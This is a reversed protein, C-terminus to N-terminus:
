DHHSSVRGTQILAPWRPCQNDLVSEGEDGACQNGGGRTEDESHRQVANPDHLVCKIIIKEQKVEFMKISGGMQWCGLMIDDDMNKM